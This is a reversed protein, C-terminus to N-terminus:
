NTKNKCISSLKKTIIVYMNKKNSITTATIKCIKILHLTCINTELNNREAIQKIPQNWQLYAKRKVFNNQKSNLFIKM